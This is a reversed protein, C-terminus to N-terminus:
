LREKAGAIIADATREKFGLSVLGEAGLEVLAAFTEINADLLVGINSTNIGRLVTLDDMSVVPEDQVPQEDKVPEPKKTDSEVVVVQNSAILGAADQSMMFFKDGDRRRGYYQKTVSGIVSHKGINGDTLQVLVTDSM